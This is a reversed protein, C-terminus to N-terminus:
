SKVPEPLPAAAINCDGSNDSVIAERDDADTIADRLDSHHLPTLDLTQQSREELIEALSRVRDVIVESDNVEAEPAM